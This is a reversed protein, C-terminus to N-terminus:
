ATRNWVLERWSHRLMRPLFAPEALVTVSWACEYTCQCRSRRLDAKMSMAKAGQWLRLFDLGAERVNGFCWPRALIECPFVDGRPSIVGFLSGAACATRTRPPRSTGAIIDQVVANKARRVAEPFRHRAPLRQPSRQDLRIQTALRQYARLVDAKGAISGIVGEERMAIASFHRIGRKKLARHVDEIDRHNDPTVTLAIDAMVRDDRCAEVMAYSELANKFAGPVGRNEDHKEELNDISLSIKVRGPLVSQRFKELFARLSRVLTGNSTIVVSQATTNEFYASVIDFLDERLFPEGGTLNVNYLSRGMTATLRKIEALSLLDPSAVPNKFDMFCHACRANCRDTLFHVISFPERKAIFTNILFHHWNM